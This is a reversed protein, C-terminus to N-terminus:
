GPDQLVDQRPALRSPLSLSMVLHMSPCIGWFGALLVDPPKFPGPWSSQQASLICRVETHRWKGATSLCAGVAVSSGTRTAMKSQPLSPRILPCRRM